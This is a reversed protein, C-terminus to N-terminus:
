IKGTFKLQLKCFKLAFIPGKGVINNIKAIPNACDPGHCKQFILPTISLRTITFTPFEDLVLILM